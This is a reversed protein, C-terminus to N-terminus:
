GPRGRPETLAAALGPYDFQAALSSLHQALAPTCADLPTLLESFRNMDGDRLANRLLRRLEDPLQEMDDDSLTSRTETRPEQTPEIAYAYHLGLSKRLWELVHRYPHDTGTEVRVLDSQAQKAAPKPRDAGASLTAVPLHCLAKHESTRLAGILEDAPWVNSAPETLMAVTGHRSILQLTQEPTTARDVSFGVTTLMVELTALGPGNPGAILVHPPRRPSAIAVPIAEATDPDAITVPIRLTFTSGGGPTSQLDIRGHMARVLQECIALGLGTGGARAGATGQHFVEFVREQEIPTLGPGTDRIMIRLEGHDNGPTHELQGSLQVGGHETFKVANDLLNTLIQRLKGRDASVRYGQLDATRIDLDLGKQQARPAFIHQLETFLNALIVPTPRLDMRGAELKAYDLIDNILSLLQEGSQRILGLHTRQENSIGTSDMLMRSFGLIANLPTRMEHSMSSIFLSKSRSNKRAAELEIRQEITERQRFAVSVVQAAAHLIEQHPRSPEGAVRRYIAFTGAPIGESDIFPYSWVARFGAELAQERITGLHQWRPDTDIDACYVPEGLAMASGCAGADPAVRFRTVLQQYGAPLRGPTGLELEDPDEARVMVSCATREILHEVFATIQDLIERFPAGQVIAGLTESRMREMEQSRRQRTTEMIIACLGDIQGESDRRPFKTTIFYRRGDPDDLYEERKLTKGSALVLEDNQTFDRAVAAPFLDRDAHGCAQEATIGTTEQWARNVQRYSGDQNKIAILSGSTELIDSLLRRQEELRQLSDIRRLANLLTDSFGKLLLTEEANFHHTGTVFDVGIFGLCQDDDMMPVLQLSRIQQPQLLRAIPDDDPLGNVDEITTIVGKLSNEFLDRFDAIPMDQLAAQESQIGTRCWEHTNSATEGVLDYRFVYARDAGLREGLETLSQDIAASMAHPAINIFRRSLTALLEYSSAQWLSLSARASSHEAQETLAAISQSLRSNRPQFRVLAAPATGDGATVRFGICTLTEHRNSLTPFNLMAPLPQRSQLWLPLIERLRRRDADDSLLADLPLGHRPAAASDRLLEGFARNFAVLRADGSVAIVPDPLPDYLNLFQDFFATMM